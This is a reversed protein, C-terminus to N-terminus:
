LSTPTFPNLILAYVEKFRRLRLFLRAFHPFDGRYGGRQDLLHSKQPSLHLAELVVVIGYEIKRRHGIEGHIFVRDDLFDVMGCGPKDTHLTQLNQAVGHGSIDLGPPLLRQPRVEFLGKGALVVGNLQGKNPRPAFFRRYSQM